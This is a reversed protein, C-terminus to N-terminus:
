KIRGGIFVCVLIFILAASDIMAAALIAEDPGM